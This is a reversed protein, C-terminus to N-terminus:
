RARDLHAEGGADDVLQGGALAADLYDRAHAADGDALAANGAQVWLVAARGDGTGEAERAAGEFATAAAAWRRQAAYAIGACERALVGGGAVRWAGAEDLARVPDSESFAVCAEFRAQAPNLPAPAATAAAAQALLILAFM